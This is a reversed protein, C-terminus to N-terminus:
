DEQAKQQKTCDRIMRVGLDKAYTTFRDYNTYTKYKRNGFGFCLVGQGLHLMRISKWKRM